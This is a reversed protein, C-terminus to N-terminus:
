RFYQEDGGSSILKSLSPPIISVPCFRLVRLFVQRLAVKDVVFGVNISRPAFGPRRPSLGAVLWRIWPVALPQVTSSAQVGTFKFDAKFVTKVVTKTLPKVVSPGRLNIGINRLFMGGGDEPSLMSITHEESVYTHVYLHV